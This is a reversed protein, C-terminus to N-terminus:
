ISAKGPSMPNLLLVPTNKRYAIYTEDNGWRRKASHELMRVGSIKVLLIYVFLPSILTVYQWGELAPIAIVAIGTWLMIEGFYNPHRSMAWLGHTIFKDQNAPDRRFATKQNDAIVEITFGIVWLLAGIIVFADIGYAKSSTLATLGAAFTLFVWLGQLTWTMMYQLFDPKIKRFRSDHGVRSVRLFLFTGLRAAWIAVLLAVLIAAPERQSFFLAAFALCLYTVSGMLDFYKETQYVYAPIFAIWQIVFAALGFAFLLPMGAVVLGGQGGAFSVALAVSVAAVIGFISIHNQSM